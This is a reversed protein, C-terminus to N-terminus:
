RCAVPPVKCHYITITIVASYIDDYNNNNNNNNNNYFACFKLKPVSMNHCFGAVGQPGVSGPPGRLGQPGLAGTAGVVADVFTRIM